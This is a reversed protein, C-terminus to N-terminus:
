LCADCFTNLRSKLTHVHKASFTSVWEGNKMKFQMHFYNDDIKVLRTNYKPHSYINDGIHTFGFAIVAALVTNYQMAETNQQKNEKSM